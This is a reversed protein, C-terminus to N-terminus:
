RAPSYRTCVNTAAIQSTIRLQDGGFFFVAHVGDLLKVKEATSWRSPEDFYFDIIKKVGHDPAPHRMNGMTGKLGAAHLSRRLSSAKRRRPSTFTGQPHRSPRPGERGAIIILIGDIIEGANRLWGKRKKTTPM